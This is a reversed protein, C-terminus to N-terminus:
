ALATRDTDRATRLARDPRRSWLRGMAENINQPGVTLKINKENASHGQRHGLREMKSM